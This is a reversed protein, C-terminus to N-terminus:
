GSKRRFTRQAKAPGSGGHAKPGGAADGAGSSSRGQRQKRELAEKFRRRVDDSEQPERSGDAM